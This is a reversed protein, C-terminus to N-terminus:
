DSIKYEFLENSKLCSFADQRAKKTAYRRYIFWREGYFKKTLSDKGRALIEFKRKKKKKKYPTPMEEYFM